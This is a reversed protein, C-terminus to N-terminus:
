SSPLMLQTNAQIFNVSELSPNLALVDSGRDLTLGNLFCVERISMLRPTVYVSLAARSAAVGAVLVAQIDVISQRLSLITDFLELSGGNSEIVSIIAGVQGTLDSVEKTLQTTSLAQTTPSQLQQVPTSNFPDNISSVLPFNQSSVNPLPASTTIPPLAGGFAASLSDIAGVAVGGGIALSSVSSSSNTATSQPPLSVGGLNVPLLSPIDTSGSNKNFSVNLKTLVDAANTKFLAMYSSVVSRVGKVLLQAGVVKNIATDVVGFVKLAGSLASKLTSQTSLASISGIGFNHEAFVVHIGMAKRQDFQHTLTWEDAGCIIEGRVPHVLVGPVPDNFQAILKNYCDLYNDGFILIEVEFSEPKRGLDDTTQGDVYPYKYKVKRRGGSDSVRPVAGNWPTSDFPNNFPATNTFVHFKVSTALSSGGKYSSEQINWENPDFGFLKGLDTLSSQTLQSFGAATGIDINTSM